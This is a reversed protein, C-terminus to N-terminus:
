CIQPSGACNQAYGADQLHGNQPDMIPTWFPARPLFLPDMIPTWIPDLIPTKKLSSIKPIFNPPFDKSSVASASKLHVLVIKHMVQMQCTDM